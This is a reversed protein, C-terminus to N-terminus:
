FDWSVCLVIYLLYTVITCYTASRNVIKMYFFTTFGTSWNATRPILACVLFFSCEPRTTSCSAHEREQCYFNFSLMQPAGPHSLPHLTQSNTEAWTMIERNTLDFGANPEASVARLRSPIREGEGEAKGQSTCAREKEKELFFFCCFVFFRLFLINHIHKQSSASM